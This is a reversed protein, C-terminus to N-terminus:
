DRIIKFTIHNRKIVEELPMGFSLSVPRGGSEDAAGVRIINETLQYKLQILGFGVLFGAVFVIIHIMHM